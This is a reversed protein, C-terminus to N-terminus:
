ESSVRLGSPAGPVAKTLDFPVTDSRGWINEAAVQFDHEGETLGDLDYHLRVTGDGMDQPASLVENGGDLVIIYNDIQETTPDCVLFPSAFVPSAFLLILVTIFYKM